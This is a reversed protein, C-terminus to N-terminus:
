RAAQANFTWGNELLPTVHGLTIDEDVMARIIDAVDYAPGEFFFRMAPTILKVLGESLANTGGAPRAWVWRIRTGQPTEEVHTQYRIISGLPGEVDFTAYDFPRWDVITHTFTTDGHACQHAAGIGLRGAENFLVDMEDSQSWIRKKDPDHLYDWALASAVPLDAEVVFWTEEPTIHMPASQRHAQWVAGLDHVFGRVAGLHDYEEEHCTMTNCAETLNLAETAAQTIFAYAAVGTRRQVGNKVLRHTLIVDPGSLETRDGFQSMMFEGYHVAFKLDLALFADAAAEDITCMNLAIRERQQRFAIYIKEIAELLTQGQMFAGQPAYAFVADGELKAIVFPPRTEELITTFLQNLIGQAEELDSQTLFATYNSMDAILLVGSQKM